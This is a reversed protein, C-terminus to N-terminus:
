RQAVAQALRLCYRGNDGRAPLITCVGTSILRRKAFASRHDKKTLGRPGLPPWHFRVLTVIAAPRDFLPHGSLTCDGFRGAGPVGLEGFVARGACAIARGGARLGGGGGSERVTEQSKGLPLQFFNAM